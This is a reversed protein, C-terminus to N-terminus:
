ANALAQIIKLLIFAGFGLWCAWGGFRKGLLGLVYNFSYGLPFFVLFMLSYLTIQQPSLDSNLTQTLLVAACGLVSLPMIAIIGDKYTADIDNFAVKNMKCQRVFAILAPIGIILGITIFLLEIM